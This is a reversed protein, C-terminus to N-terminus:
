EKVGVFIGDKVVMTVYMLDNCAHCWDYAEYEGDALRGTIRTKDVRLMGCLDEWATGAMNPYFMMFEEHRKKKEEENIDRLAYSAAPEGERYFNLECDLDKTQFDSFAGTYCNRCQIPTKLHFTDFMGMDIV